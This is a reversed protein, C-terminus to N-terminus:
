KRLILRRLEVAVFVVAFSAFAAFGGFIPFALVVL